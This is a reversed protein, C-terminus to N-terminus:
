QLIFQEGTHITHLASFGANVELVYEITQPPYFIQPYTNATVDSTIGAVRMSSDLWIFDLSYNMDKMWFGYTGPTQFVFLKGSNGPLSTTGSLGQERTTDTDAVSVPITLAGSVLTQNYITDGTEPARVVMHGSRLLLLVAIALVVGTVTLIFIVNHINQRSNDM